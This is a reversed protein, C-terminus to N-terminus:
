ARGLREGERVAERMREDRDFRADLLPNVIGRLASWVRWWRPRVIRPARREIGDVIAAGAASPPLRRLLAKPFMEELRQTVRDEFADRVM